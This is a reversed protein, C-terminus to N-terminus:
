LLTLHPCTLQRSYLPQGSKQPDTILPKVTSLFNIAMDTNHYVDISVKCVCTRWCSHLTFHITPPPEASYVCLPVTTVLTFFLPLCTSAPLLLLNWWWPVLMHEDWFTRAWHINLVTSLSLHMCCHAGIIHCAPNLGVCQDVHTFVLGPHTERIIKPMWVCSLKVYLKM